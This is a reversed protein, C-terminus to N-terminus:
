DDVQVSNLNVTAIAIRNTNTVSTATITIKDTNKPRDTLSLRYSTTEGQPPDFQGVNPEATWTVQEPPDVKFSMSEQDTLQLQNPNIKFESNGTSTSSAPTEPQVKLTDKLDNLKIVRTADFEIPIQNLEALKKDIYHIFYKPDVESLQNPNQLNINKALKTALYSTLENILEIYKLYLGRNAGLNIDHKFMLPLKQYLLGVSATVILVNMLAPNAAMWGVQTIFFLCIGGVIALGSTMSISIFYQQYFFIMVDKHRKIRKNIEGWQQKLREIERSELIMQNLDEDKFPFEGPSDDTKTKPKGAKYGMWNSSLIYAYKKLIWFSSGILIILGGTLLIHGFFTPIPKKDKSDETILCIQSIDLLSIDLLCTAQNNTSQPSKNENKDKVTDPVSPQVQAQILTLPLAQVKDPSYGILSLGLVLLSCSIWSRRLYKM